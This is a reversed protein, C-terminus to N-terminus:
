TSSISISVERSETAQQVKTILQDLQSKDAVAKSGLLQKATDILQSLRPVTEKELPLKSSRLLRLTNRLKHSVDRYKLEDGM